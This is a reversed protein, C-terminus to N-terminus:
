EELGVESLSSPASLPSPDPSKRLSIRLSQTSKVNDVAKNSHQMSKASTEVQKFRGTAPMIIAALLSLFAAGGLVAGLGASTTVLNTELVLFVIFMCLTGFMQPSFSAWEPSPIWGLCLTVFSYAAGNAISATLTMLAFAMLAPVWWVHNHYDLHRLGQIAPLCGVFTIVASACPPIITNIPIACLTTLLCLIACVFAALGTRAGIVFAIASQIFPTAPAVGL